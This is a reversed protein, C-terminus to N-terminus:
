SQNERCEELAREIERMQSEIGVDLRGAATEFLLGTPEQTSDAAIEIRRGAALRQLSAQVSPEVGPHVRVRVIEQAALRELAVRVIGDFAESGSQLEQRLIRRAIDVSLRVVDNEAQQLIRPRLGAIDAVAKEVQQRLSEIRAASAADSETKGDRVGAAYSDRARQEARQEMLALEARLQDLESPLEPEPEPQLETEPEPEPDPPPAPTDPLWDLRVSAAADSQGLIKSLM